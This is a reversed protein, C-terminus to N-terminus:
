GALGVMAVGVVTVAAGIIRSRGPREGLWVVGLAVVFLVSAQRVAVVYSAPASRLAELILGYSAFTFVLAAALRGWELRATEWLAERSLRRSALPVFVFMHAFGLAFFYFIARPIPASWIAADLEAMAQKDFLGYAVTTALTLYAFVAGPAFFARWEFGPGVHVLWMGAVVTAIGIAGLLTVSEGLLPVALLPLFAPTSRAIPYVLTIDALEYARTMWYLYFGHAVGTGCLLIWVGGPIEGPPVLAMVVVAIPLPVITQLVNFAMPDRSGKIAISWTAHLLASLLVIAFDAPSM